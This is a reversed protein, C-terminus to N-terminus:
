QQAHRDWKQQFYASRMVVRYERQSVDSVLTRYDVVLSRIEEKMEEFEPVGQGRGVSRGRRSMNRKRRGATNWELSAESQQHRSTLRRVSRPRDMSHPTPVTQMSVTASNEKHATTTQRALCMAAMTLAVITNPGMTILSVTATSAVEGYTAM